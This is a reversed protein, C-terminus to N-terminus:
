LRFPDVLYKGAPAYTRVIAIIPDAHATDLKADVTTKLSAPHCFRIFLGPAVTPGKAPQLRYRAVRVDPRYNFEVSFTPTNGGVRHTVRRDIENKLGVTSSIGVTRNGAPTPDNLM